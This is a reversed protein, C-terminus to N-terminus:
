LRPLDAAPRRSALEGFAASWVPGTHSEVTWLCSGNVPEWVRVTGDFGTTAFMARGDQVKAFAAAWVIDRHGSCVALERPDLPTGSM